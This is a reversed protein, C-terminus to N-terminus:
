LEVQHNRYASVARAAIRRAKLKRLTIPDALVMEQTDLELEIAAAILEILENDETM